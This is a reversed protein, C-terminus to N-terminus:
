ILIFEEEAQLLELEGSILEYEALPILLTIVTDLSLSEDITEFHNALYIQCYQQVTLALPKLM